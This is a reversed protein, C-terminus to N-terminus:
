IMYRRLMTDQDSKTKNVHKERHRIEDYEKYAGRRYGNAAAQAILNDATSKRDKM